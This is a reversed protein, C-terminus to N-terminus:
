KKYIEIKKKLKEKKNQLADMKIRFKKFQEATWMEEASDRNNELEHIDDDIWEIEEKWKEIYNTENELLLEKFKQM